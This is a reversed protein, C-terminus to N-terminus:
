ADPPLTAHWEVDRAPVPDGAVSGGGTWTVYGDGGMPDPALHPTGPYHGKDRECGTSYPDAGGTTYTAGCQREQEALWELYAPDEQGDDRPDGADCVPCWGAEDMASDHGEWTCPGTLNSPM